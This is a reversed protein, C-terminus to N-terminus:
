KLIKNLEDIVDEYCGIKTSIRQHAVLNDNVPDDRMIKSVTLRILYESRLREIKEKM